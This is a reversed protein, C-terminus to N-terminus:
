GATFGENRTRCIYNSCSSSRRGCDTGCVNSWRNGHIVSFDSDIAVPFHDAQDPISCHWAEIKRHIYLIRFVDTSHWELVYCVYINPFVTGCFPFVSREGFRFYQCDTKSVVSFMWLVICIAFAKKYAERVRDYNHAGYNFGWIPQCGQSIGIAIAMFVMNVKSIVGVCALPIESGYMSQAGYYRLTNNMTIQVIAMAIQNICSAMGLSVIMKLYGAKPVFMSRKLDMKRKKSFYYIVMLGSVVQGIVTATAAGKIGWHFVFLPDLITNLIAGTLMCTMSYTPSRDARILHNGGTTLILFPIGIATIGTYDQAYPLIEKTVGFLHLLPNLFILVVAGIVVGCIVLMALGNGAIEAARDNRGAGAELNYNSASGIGLLLATATCIISVPFAINTAANGLMGVGQGIFIQDVINYLSSVLMSIIAPVAFRAILRGIKEEALPNGQKINESSM